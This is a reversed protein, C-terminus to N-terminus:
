CPSSTGPRVLRMFTRFSLKKTREYKFTDKTCVSYFLCYDMWRHVVVCFAIGKVRGEHVDEGLVQVLGVAVGGDPLWLRRRRRVVTGM